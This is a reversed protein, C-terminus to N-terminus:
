MEEPAEMSMLGLCRALVIRAADVLKLRAKTVKIEEPKTSVVRCQQYFWHFATALEMAYHPLHHPELTRAITEVLEPLVLMKRILSLESEDTLLLVQGDEHNIGNEKALRLISAIRAHAYQVYYVPNESSEQKALELDFEMQSDHSRSLFFYRCADTGVENVLDRVTILDGARKSVRVSEKGRKFTVLQYILLNLRDPAVGLATVVADMFSVHGQHDAGLVDIVRDFKRHFFKDYHYAVDGAFYTPIGTSRILVKDKEDGLSSSKFWTAGEREVLFGKDSLLKMSQKYQGDEYLTRESFWVDYDVRLGNMDARIADLMKRVGLVGIEAIAEHEPKSLFKDGEQHKLERALEVMYEGRYGDEPVQADIGFQQQYRAYLSHNFRDMQNGADNIYYERHVEYRAAELINALASGFVAGRAHGVHLPGTPNVSVFEVQVRHGEGVDVSGYDSGIELVDDVQLALWSSKLSFNIFGPSAAWVRDIARDEPMGSVIKEAILMPNMAMSRAIKLPFSCSFDGNEPNQPREVVPDAGSIAPLLGEVQVQELAHKVLDVIQSRITSQPKRLSTFKDIDEVM